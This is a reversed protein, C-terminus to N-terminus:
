MVLGIWAGWTMAFTRSSSLIDVHSPHLDAAQSGRLHGDRADLEPSIRDTHIEDGGARAADVLPHGSLDHPRYASSGNDDGDHRVHRDGGHAAQLVRRPHVAKLQVAVFPGLGHRRKQGVGVFGKANATRFVNRLGVLHGAIVNEHVRLYAPSEASVPVTKSQFSTAARARRRRRMEAPPSVGSLTRRAM